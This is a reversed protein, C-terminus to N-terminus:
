SYSPRPLTSKGFLRALSAPFHVLRIIFRPAALPYTCFVNLSHLAKEKSSSAFAAALTRVSRILRGSPVYTSHLRGIYEISFEM